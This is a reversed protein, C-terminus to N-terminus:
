RTNAARIPTAAPHTAHHWEGQFVKRTINLDEMEQGSIVIGKESVTSDLECSATLGTRWGALTQV